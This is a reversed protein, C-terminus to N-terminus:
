KILPHKNLPMQLGSDILHGLTPFYLTSTADNSDSANGSNCTLKSEWNNAYKDDYTNQKHMKKLLLITEYYSIIHMNQWIYRIYWCRYM